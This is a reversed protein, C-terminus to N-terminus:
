FQDGLYFGSILAWLACGGSVFIHRSITYTEQTKLKQPHTIILVFVIFPEKGVRGMNGLQETKLVRMPDYNM